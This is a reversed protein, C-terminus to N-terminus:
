PITSFFDRCFFDQFIFTTCEIEISWNSGVQSITFTDTSDAIILQAYDADKINKLIASDRCLGNVTIVIVNYDKGWTGWKAIEVSPKKKTHFNLTLRGEVDFRIQGLYIPESLGDPFLKKLFLNNSIKDIIDLDVVESIIIDMLVRFM